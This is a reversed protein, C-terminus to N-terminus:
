GFRWKSYQLCTSFVRWHMWSSGYKKPGGRLTADCAQAYVLKCSGETEGGCIAALTLAAQFARTV